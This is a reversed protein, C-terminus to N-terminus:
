SFLWKYWEEYTRYNDNLYHANYVDILGPGNKEENFVTNCRKCLLGKANSPVPYVIAPAPEEKTSSLNAVQINPNEWVKKM